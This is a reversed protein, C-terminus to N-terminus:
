WPPLELEAWREALVTPEVNDVADVESSVVTLVSCYAARCVPTCCTWPQDM